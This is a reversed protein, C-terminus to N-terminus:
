TQTLQCGQAHRGEELRDVKALRRTDPERLCCFRRTRTPSPQERPLEIGTNEGKTAAAEVEHLDFYVHLWPQDTATRSWVDLRESYNLAALKAGVGYKGITANSMYRTSYGIQPYHHLVDLGM